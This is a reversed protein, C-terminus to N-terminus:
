KGFNEILQLIEQKIEKHKFRKFFWTKFKEFSNLQETGCSGHRAQSAYEVEIDHFDGKNDAVEPFYESSGYLSSYGQIDAILKSLEDPVRIGEFEDENYVSAYFWKKEKCYEMFDELIVALNILHKGDQSVYVYVGHENKSFDKEKLYQKTKEM